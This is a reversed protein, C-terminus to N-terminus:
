VEYEVVAINKGYGKEIFYAQAGRAEELTVLAEFLGALVKGSDMDKVLYNIEKEM